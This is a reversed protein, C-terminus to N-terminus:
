VLLARRHHGVHSAGGTVKLPTAEVEDLLSVDTAWVTCRPPHMFMRACGRAELEGTARWMRRRRDTIRMNEMAM